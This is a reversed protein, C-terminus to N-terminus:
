VRKCRGGVLTTFLSRTFENQTPLRKIVNLRKHKEKLASIKDTLIRIRKLLKNRRDKLKRNQSKTARLIKDSNIGIAKFFDDNSPLKILLDLKGVTAEHKKIIKTKEEIEKKVHMQAKNYKPVFSRANPNLHM